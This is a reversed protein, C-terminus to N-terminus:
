SNAVSRITLLITITASDGSSNAFALSDASIEHLAFVQIASATLSVIANSSGNIKM